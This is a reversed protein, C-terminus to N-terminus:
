RALHSHSPSLTYYHSTLLLLILKVNVTLERLALRLGCEDSICELTSLQIKPYDQLHADSNDYDHERDNCHEDCESLGRFSLQILEDIM